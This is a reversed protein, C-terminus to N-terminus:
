AVLFRPETATVYGLWGDAESSTLQGVTLGSVAAHLAFRGDEFRRALGAPVLVDDLIDHITMEVAGMSGFRPEDDNFLALADAEPNWVEMAMRWATEFCASAFAMLADVPYARGPELAKLGSFLGAIAGFTIMSAVELVHPPFLKAAAEDEFVPSGAAGQLKALRLGWLPHIGLTM